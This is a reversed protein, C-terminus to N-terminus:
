QVSYALYVYIKNCSRYHLTEHTLQMSHPVMLEMPLEVTFPLKDHRSIQVCMEAIDAGHKRFWELKKKLNFPNKLRILHILHIQYFRQHM